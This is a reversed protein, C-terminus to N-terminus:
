LSSPSIIWHSFHMTLLVKTLLAQVWLEWMASLHIMGERRWLFNPDEIEACFICNADSPLPALLKTLSSIIKNFQEGFLLYFELLSGRFRWNCVSRVKRPM